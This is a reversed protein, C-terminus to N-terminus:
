RGVELVMMMHGHNVCEVEIRGPKGLRYTRAEGPKQRGLDFAYGITPAFVTHDSTDDNVFRVTDGVKAAVVAPQYRGGAMTVVHEAALAGTAGGAALSVGLLLARM